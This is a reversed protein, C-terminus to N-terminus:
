PGATIQLALFDEITSFGRNAMQQVPVNTIGAPVVFSRTSSNPSGDAGRGLYLRTYVCDADRFVSASTISRTANNFVVTIRIVKGQYDGSEWVYPSQAPDGRGLAAM